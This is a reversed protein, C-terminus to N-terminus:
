KEFTPLIISIRFFFCKIKKKIKSLFVGFKLFLKGEDSDLINSKLIKVNNLGIQAEVERDM